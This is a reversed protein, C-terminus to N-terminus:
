ISGISELRVHLPDPRNYNYKIIEFNLTQMELCLIEKILSYFAMHLHSSQILIISNLM